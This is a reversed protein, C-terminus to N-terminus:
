TINRFLKDFLQFVTVKTIKKGVTIKV